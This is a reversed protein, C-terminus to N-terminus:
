GERDLWKWLPKLFRPADAAAVTLRASAMIEDHDAGRAIARAYARLDAEPDDLHGRDYVARLEAFGTEDDNGAPSDHGAAPEEKASAGSVPARRRFPAWRGGPTRARTRARREGQFDILTPRAEGTLGKQADM